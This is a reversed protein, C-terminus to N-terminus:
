IFVKYNNNRFNKILGSQNIPYSTNSNRRKRVYIKGDPDSYFYCTKKFMPDRKKLKVKFLEGNVERIIDKLKDFSVERTRNKFASKLTDKVQTRNKVEILSYMSLVVLENILARFLKTNNKPVGTIIRYKVEKGYQSRMKTHDDKVNILEKFKTIKQKLEPKEELKNIEITTKTKLSLKNLDKENGLHKLGMEIFDKKGRANPCFHLGSKDYKWIEALLKEPTYDGIFTSVERTSFDKPFVNSDDSIMYAVPKREGIDYLKLDKFINYSM